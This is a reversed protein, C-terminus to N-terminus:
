YGEYALSGSSNRLGITISRTGNEELTVGDTMPEFLYSDIYSDINSSDGSFRLLTKARGDALMTKFGANIGISENYGYFGSYKYPHDTMRPPIWRLLGRLRDDNRVTWADEVGTISQSFVSDESFQDDAISQYVPSGSLVANQGYVSVSGAVASEGSPYILFWNTNTSVVANAYHRIFWWGNGVSVPSYFGGSGRNFSSTPAGGNWAVNIVSRFAGTNFDYFAMETVAATGAKMFVGAEQYGDRAYPVVKRAYLSAGGVNNTLTYASTGGYPDAISGTISAGAIIPWTAFNEVSGWTIIPFSFAM